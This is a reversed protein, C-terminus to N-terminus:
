LKAKIGAYFGRSPRLFGTPDQYHEDFLNNVRGYVTFQDTIDYNAAIDATTFGPATLRPISYDRNDDIWSSVYLLDADFSLAKTAQWKADLSVKHKPRRPLEQHM